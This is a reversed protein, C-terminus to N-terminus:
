FATGMQFQFAQIKDEPKRNLPYGLSLKLPGLPSIWNLL